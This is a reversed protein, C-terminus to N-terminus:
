YVWGPGLCGWSGEAEEAGFLKQGREELEQDLRLEGRLTQQKVGRAAVQPQLRREARFHERSYQDAGRSKATGRMETSPPSQPCGGRCVSAPNKETWCLKGDRQGREKWHCGM